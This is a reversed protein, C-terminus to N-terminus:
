RSIFVFNEKLIDVYLCMGGLVLAVSTEDCYKFFINIKLTTFEHKTKNVFEILLNVILLIKFLFFVKKWRFASLLLIEM